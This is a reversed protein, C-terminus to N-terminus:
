EGIGPLVSARAFRCLEQKDTAALWFPCSEQTAVFGQHNGIRRLFRPPPVAVRYDFRKETEQRLVHDSKWFLDPRQVRGLERPDIRKDTTQRQVRVFVQAVLREDLPIEPRM